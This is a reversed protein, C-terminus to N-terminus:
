RYCRSNESQMRLLELCLASIEPNESKRLIQVLLGILSKSLWEDIMFETISSLVYLLHLFSSEFKDFNSLNKVFLKEVLDLINFALSAKQLDDCNMLLNYLFGCSTAVIKKSCEDDNSSYKDIVNLLYKLGDKNILNRAEENDFCLNGLARLTQWLLEEENNSKLILKLKEVVPDETLVKRNEESKALEALLQVTLQQVHVNDYGLLEEFVDIKKLQFANPEKVFNQLQNTLKSTDKSKIIGSLDM